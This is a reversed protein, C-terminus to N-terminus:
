VGGTPHAAHRRLHELPQVGHLALGHEVV